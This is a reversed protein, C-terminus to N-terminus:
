CLRWHGVDADSSLATMKEELNWRHKSEAGAACPFAGSGRSAAVVAWEGRWGMDAIQASPEIACPLSRTNIRL